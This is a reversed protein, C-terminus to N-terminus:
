GMGIRALHNCTLLRVLDTQLRICLRLFRRCETCSGLHLFLEEESKTGLEEDIFESALEQYQEHDM